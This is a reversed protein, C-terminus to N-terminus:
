NGKKLFGNLEKASFQMLTDFHHQEKQEEQSVAQSPAPEKPEVKEETTSLRKELAVLREVLSELGILQHTRLIRLLLTELATRKSLALKFTQEAESLLELIQVLQEERYLTASRQYQEHDRHHPSIKNKILFLTRFHSILEKVFYTINKGSSFIQEAIEFAAIKRGEAGAEDLTFLLQRPPLGFVETVREATVIGEQFVILQDFLSEADRLSGEALEALIALADPEVSLNMDAAISTLKEQIKELSIRGLNFRQCRSLVTAPVKQPETTAFFFKVHKPPEELTKLLANFAEKTLMHVEDILYIKFRGGTPAFGISENIQRIDEIGRHSAGDIELVDMAQGGATEKCSPCQNCPECDSSLKACNLAKAFLRALTTKGTGHSGCFLYAHATRNLYIANKLTTVIAEQGLVDCFRQPRYKRALVQYTM